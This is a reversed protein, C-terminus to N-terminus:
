TGSPAQDLGALLGQEYLVLEKGRKLAQYFDRDLIREHIAAIFPAMSPAAKMIEGAQAVFTAELAGPDSALYMQELSFYLRKCPTNAEGETIIDAERLVKSHTEIMLETRRSGNRIKANGIIVREFPKLEIRLPM